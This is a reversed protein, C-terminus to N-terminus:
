ALCISLPHSCTTDKHQQRLFPQVTNYLYETQRQTPLGVAHIIQPLHETIRARAKLLAIEMKDTDTESKVIM